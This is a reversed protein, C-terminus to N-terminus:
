KGYKQEYLKKATLPSDNGEKNKIPAFEDERKIRFVLFKNLIDFYDFNFEEFKYANPETPTIYNGAEDLYNVKKHTIHYTPKRDLFKEVIDTSLLFSVLNADGYLFDGKDDKEKAMAETIEFYELVTPRKNKMAFVGVKEDWTKKMTSKGSAQYHNKITAGIMIPDIPNALINDIGVLYIWKTGEKKMKSLIQNDQLSKYIAGNGSSSKYIYGDKDLIIKGNELVNEIEGQMFFTIYEKPYNFYNNKEFFEITDKHNEKSTMIYWSIYVKYKIYAQKLNDCHIQFISKPHNIDVVFTGKPGNHGLRSGQGGALTIVSYENNCIIKEGISQYCKKEEESLYEKVVVNIPEIVDEIQQKKKNEISKEYLNKILEFDISNIQKTLEKKEETDFKDYNQLLHLQDYKKLKEKLADINNM